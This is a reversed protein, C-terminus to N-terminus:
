LSIFGSFMRIVLDNFTLSQSKPHAILLKTYRVVKQPVYSYIAGSSKELYCYLEETSIQDKPINNYSIYLLIDGNM